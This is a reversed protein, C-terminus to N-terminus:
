PINCCYRLLPCFLIAPPYFKDQGLNQLKRNVSFVTMERFILLVVPGCSRSLVSVNQHTVNFSIMYRALLAHTAEQKFNM